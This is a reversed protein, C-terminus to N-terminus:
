QFFRILGQLVNWIARLPATIRWSFTSKIRQIERELNYNSDLHRNSQLVDEHAIRSCFSVIEQSSASLEVAPTTALGIYINILRQINSELGFNEQAMKRLEEGYEQRYNCLETVLNNVTYEKHQYRGSFNHTQLIHLNSPTVLGDGGHIDFVLPVRGCLMAEVAGRGLSVVIDAENIKTALQNQSLTNLPGGVFSISAGIRATADCLLIKRTEDMRYSLVLVREPRQRILNTPIFRRSNVLNRVISIKNDPIRNFVLHKAVEESIALYHSVGVDFPIPQELFPLIGLSSFVIPLTPFKARVDVLCANHQVHALDFKFKAVVDLDDTLLVDSGLHRTAWVKDLHRVYVAIKCGNERLGEILTLLLTESGTWGFLHNTTLLISLSRCLQPATKKKGDM